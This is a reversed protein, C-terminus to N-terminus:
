TSVDVLVKLLGGQSARQFAAPSESLPYRAAVMGAVSVQGSRIAEIAPPFQGCRSGVLTIEDVVVPALDLPAPREATTKLVITGRPQVWPVLQALVEPKGTAEVALDFPRGRPKGDLLDKEITANKPLLEAREPHHGAVVVDLGHLALVKACLLGLRGDGAVLARRHSSLSVQETIEFAAALPELFVATDDDIEPPVPHLNEAPLSLREAFAGSRNLIGLVTREPCHRGLDRACWDCQGCAANIEGVVRQGAFPGNSAVGVFEHGPVGQFGMYGRALALDTSCVGVKRVQVLVEGPREPHPLDERLALSGDALFLGTMPKQEPM